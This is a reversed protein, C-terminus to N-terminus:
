LPNRQHTTTTSPSSAKKTRSGDPSPGSLLRNTMSDKNQIIKAGRTIKCLSVGLQNAIARQPTHERLLKMVQWRLAIDQQESETFIENFFRRLSPADAIRRIADVIENLATNKASASKSASITASKAAGRTNRNM